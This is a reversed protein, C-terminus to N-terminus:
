SLLSNSEEESLNALVIYRNTSLSSMSPRRQPNTLSPLPRPVHFSGSRGVSSVKPTVDSPSSPNHPIGQMQPCPAPNQASVGPKPGKSPPLSSSKGLKSKPSAVPKASGDKPFTLPAPNVPESVDSALKSPSNINMSQGNQNQDPSQKSKLNNLEEALQGIIKDKEHLNKELTYIQENTANENNEPRSRQDNDAANGGATNQGSTQFGM